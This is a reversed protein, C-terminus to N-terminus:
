RAQTGTVQPGSPVPCTKGSRCIGWAATAVLAGILIGVVFQGGCRGRRTYGCCRGSDSTDHTDHTM